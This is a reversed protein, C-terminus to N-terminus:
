LADHMVLISSFFAKYQYVFIIMHCPLSKQQSWAAGCASIIVKDKSPKGEKNGKSEVEKVVDM